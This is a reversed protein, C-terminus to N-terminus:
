RPFYAAKDPLLIQQYGFTGSKQNLALHFHSVSGTPMPYHWATDHVQILNNIYLNHMEHAYNVPHLDSDTNDAYTLSRRTSTKVKFGAGWADFYSHPGDSNQTHEDPTCARWTDRHSGALDVQLVDGILENHDGARRLAHLPRITTPFGAQTVTGQDFGSVLSTGRRRTMDTIHFVLRTDSVIAHGERSCWENFRRVYWQTLISLTFADYSLQKDTTHAIYVAVSLTHTNTASCYTPRAVIQTVRPPHPSLCAAQDTLLLKVTGLNNSRGNENNHMVEALHSKAKDLDNYTRLQHGVNGYVLNDTAQKTWKDSYPQIDCINNTGGLNWLAEALAYGLNFRTGAHTLEHYFAGVLNDTNGSLGFSPFNPIYFFNQTHTRHGYSFETLEATALNDANVVPSTATNM